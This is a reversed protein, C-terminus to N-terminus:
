TRPEVGPAPVFPEATPGTEGRHFLYVGSLILAGGLAQVVTIQEGLFVLAFLAGFVTSTSWVLIMRIAGLAKVAAIFLYTGGSLAFSLLILATVDYASFGFPIGSVLVFISVVVGGLLNRFKSLSSVDFKKSASAILNNEIAWFVMSGVILLNGAIGQLFAVHALSLNTSVIVLGAVILLGRAGQGRGLREGFITFAIVTTFLGEGNSLLAGNVATTQNLGFTFMLPALAAGVLGFYLLYPLSKAAPKVRPRYLLLLLGSLLFSFGVVVVPGHTVLIIKTLTPVSGGCISGVIAYTYGRAVESRQRGTV